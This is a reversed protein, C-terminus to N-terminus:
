LFTQKGKEKFTRFTMGPGGWIPISILKLDFIQGIVAMIRHFAPEFPYMSIEHTPANPINLSSFTSLGTMFFRAAPRNYVTYSGKLRIYKNDIDATKLFLTDPNEVTAINILERTGEM